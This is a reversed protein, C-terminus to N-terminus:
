PNRLRAKENCGSADTLRFAPALVRRMAIEM